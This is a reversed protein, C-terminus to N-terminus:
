FTQRPPSDVICALVGISHYMSTVSSDSEVQALAVVPAPEPDLGHHYVHMYYSDDGHHRRIRPSRNSM